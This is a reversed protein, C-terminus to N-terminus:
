RRPGSTAGEDREDRAEDQAAERRKRTARDSGPDDRADDRSGPPDGGRSGRDGRGGRRALSVPLTGSTEDFVLHSHPYAIEVDASDLADWVNTQVDSRVTLLKYPEKVWYRLALLVGHDAFEDIYCTPAAPYRASGIRVDPGGSIVVDVARAADEILARAEDLDGEYTVLVDLRLRTRPDEASYNVVDRERMTGNPIVLFTNDLTFIKTYRLTIDEVFGRRDTDVIEIMDGIEYSKDTLVFFGSIISGLIPAIVVAIAATLVTASLLISGLEVGYVVASVFVAVLMVGARTSRLVTRSVSPRQFRRAVRRGLLRVLLKSGYWALVLVVLALVSRIAWIPVEPLLESLFGVTENAGQDLAGGTSGNSGNVDVGPEPTEPQSAVSATRVTASTGEM